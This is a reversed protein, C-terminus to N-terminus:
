KSKKISIQKLAIPQNGIHSYFIFFNQLKNEFTILKKNKYIKNKIKEYCKGM